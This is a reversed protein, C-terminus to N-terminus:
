FPFKKLLQSLEKYRRNDQSNIIAVVLEMDQLHSQEDTVYDLICKREYVMAPCSICWHKARNIFLQQCYSCMEQNGRIQAYTKSSLRIKHIMKQQLRPLKLLFKQQKLELNNNFRFTWTGCNKIMEHNIDIATNQIHKRIKLHSSKVYHDIVERQLGEKAYKDALENGTIGVHSPIWNIVPKDEMHKVTDYIYKCLARESEKNKTLIQIATLSDTHIIARNQNAAAHELAGWIAVLEAQTITADDNLRLYSANDNVIYAAAVRSNSKSGDTYYHTGSPLNQIEQIATTKLDNATSSTKTITHNVHFTIPLAEWPACVDFTEMTRDDLRPSLKKYIDRCTILWKSRERNIMSQRACSVHLPHSPMFRIKDILKAVSIECRARVPLMSLERSMSTTCAWKPLGLILRMGQNQVRQLTIINSKCMLPTLIAGYELTSQVCASYVRKMIHASIHTFSSMVKMANMNKKAQAAVCNAQYTFTMNSDLQIGLYKENSSWPLVQENLTIQQEPRKTYFWMAKSKIPSFQLGCNMAEVHLLNLASQLDTILKEKNTHVCSLALDDAYAVLQVSAPLKQDLLCNIVYSFITPSLCSGQPTGNNFDMTSSLENQFQM